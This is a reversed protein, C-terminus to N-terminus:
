GGTGGHEKRYVAWLRVGVREVAELHRCGGRQDLEGRVLRLIVEVGCHPCRARPGPVCEMAEAGDRM